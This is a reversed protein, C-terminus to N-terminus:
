RTSKTLSIDYKTHPVVGPVSEGADFLERFAGVSPRRQLLHLADNRLIYIGLQDWDRVNPVVASTLTATAVNARVSHFDQERMDAILSDRIADMEEELEKISNSLEQKQTRLRFLLDIRAPISKPATQNPDAM